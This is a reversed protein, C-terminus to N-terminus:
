AWVVESEKAQAKAKVEALHKYRYANMLAMCITACSDYDNLQKASELLTLNVSIEHDLKSQM